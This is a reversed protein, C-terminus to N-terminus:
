MNKIIAQGFESCKVESVGAQKEQNMLRAFDYTVTKNTIAKDMGKIGVFTHFSQLDAPTWAHLEVVGVLYAQLLLGCLV